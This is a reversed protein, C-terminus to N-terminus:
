WINIMSNINKLHVDSPVENHHQTALGPWVSLPNQIPFWRTRIAIGQSVSSYEGSVDVPVKHCAIKLIGPEM